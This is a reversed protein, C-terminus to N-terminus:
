EWCSKNTGVRGIKGGCYKDDAAAHPMLRHDVGKVDDSPVELTQHKKLYPIMDDWGWGKNGLAKWGDYDKCSGRVYMLCNIGSSGGHLKGRPM